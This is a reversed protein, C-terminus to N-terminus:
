QRWFGSRQSPSGLSRRAKAYAKAAAVYAEMAGHEEYEEFANLAEPNKRYVELAADYAADFALGDDGLLYGGRSVGCATEFAAHQAPDDADHKHVKKTM